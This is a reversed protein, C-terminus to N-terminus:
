LCLTVEICLSSPSGKLRDASLTIVAQPHEPSLWSVEDTETNWYYYRGSCCCCCCCCCCFCCTDWWKIVAKVFRVGICNEVMYAMYASGSMVVLSM